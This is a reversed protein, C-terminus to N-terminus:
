ELMPQRPLVTATCITNKWIPSLTHLSPQISSSMMTALVSTLLGFSTTVSSEMRTKQGPLLGALRPVELILSLHCYMARHRPQVQVNFSFICCLLRLHLHHLISSPSKSAEETMIAVTSVPSSGIRTSASVTFQYYEYPHLGTILYSSDNGAATVLALGGDGSTLNYTITHSILVGNPILPISWTLLCTRATM